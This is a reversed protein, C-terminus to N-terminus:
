HVVPVGGDGRLNRREDEALNRLQRGVLYEQEQIRDMLESWTDMTWRGVLVVMLMTGLLWYFASVCVVEAFELVVHADISEGPVRGSFTLWTRYGSHFLLHPGVILGMLVALVHGLVIHFEWLNIGSLHGVSLNFGIRMIRAFLGHRARQPDGGNMLQIHPVARPDAAAAAPQGNQQQANDGQGQQAQNVVPQPQQNNNNNPQAPREHGVFVVLYVYAMRMLMIGLVWEVRFFHVPLVEVGKGQLRKQSEELIAVPLASSSAPLYPVSQVSSNRGAMYNLSSQFVPEALRIPVVFIKNLLVMLLTPVVFGTWMLIYLIKMWKVVQKAMGYTWVKVTGWHVRPSGTMTYNLPWKSKFEQVLFKYMEVRDARVQSADELVGARMDGGDRVQAETQRILKSVAFQCASVTCDTIVNTMQAMTKDLLGTFQSGPALIGARREFARLFVDIRNKDEHDAMMIEVSPRASVSDRNPNPQHRPDPETESLSGVSTSFTSARGLGRETEANASDSSVVRHAVHRFYRHVSRQAFQTLKRTMYWAQWTKYLWRVSKYLVYNVILGISVMYGDHATTGLVVLFETSDVPTMLKALGHSLLPIFVSNVSWRGIFVSFYTLFSHFSNSFMWLSLLFTWIRRKFHPPRFVVTTQLQATRGQSSPVISQVTTAVRPPSPKTSSDYLRYPTPLKSSFQLSTDFDVSQYVSGGLAQFDSLEADVQLPDRWNMLANYLFNWGRKRRQKHVIKMPPEPEPDDAPARTGVPRIGFVMDTVRSERPVDIAFAMKVVKHKALDDQAVVRILRPREPDTSPAGDTKSKPDWGDLGIEDDVFRHGFLFSQLRLWRASLHVFNKWARQYLQGSPLVRLMFPIWIQSLWLDLHYSFARPQTFSHYRFPFSALGQSNIQVMWEWISLPNSPSFYGTLVRFWWEISVLGYSFLGISMFILVSYLSFSLGIKELMLVLPKEVLDKMPQFDPDQPDRIFWIVGPRFFRRFMGVFMAFSFMFLTGGFWVLFIAFFPSLKLFLLRSVLGQAIPRLLPSLSLAIHELPTTPLQNIMMTDLAATMFTVVPNSSATMNSMTLNAHSVGTPVSMLQAMGGSDVPWRETMGFFAPFLTLDLVLGCCIPFVVIEILTIGVVKASLFIFNFARKLQQRLHNLGTREPDWNMTHWILNVVALSAYAAMIITGYGLLIMPVREVFDNYFSVTTTHNAMTSSTLNAQLLPETNNNLQFPDTAPFLANLIWAHVPELALFARLIWTAMMGMLWPTYLLSGIGVSNFFVTWLVNVLVTTLPGGVGFFEMFGIEGDAAEFLDEPNNWEMPEDEQERPIDEDLPQNPDDAQQAQAPPPQNPALEDDDDHDDDDDDNDLLPHDDEM